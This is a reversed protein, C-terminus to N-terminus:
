TCFCNLSTRLNYQISFIAYLPLYLFFCAVLQNTLGKLCFINTLIDIRSIIHPRYNRIAVLIYCPSPIFTERNLTLSIATLKYPHGNSTQRSVARQITDIKNLFESATIELTLHKRICFEMLLHSRCQNSLHLTDLIISSKIYGSEVDGPAIIAFNMSDFTSHWHSIDATLCCLLQCFAKFCTLVQLAM